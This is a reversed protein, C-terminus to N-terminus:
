ARVMKGVDALLARLNLGVGAALSLILAGLGFLLPNPLAAMNPVSAMSILEADPLFRQEAATLANFEALSGRYVLEDSEAERTLNALEFAAIRRETMLARIAVIEKDLLDQRHSWGEAEVQAGALIRDQETAIREEISQIEAPSVVPRALAEALSQKLRQVTPSELVAPASDLSNQEKMRALTTARTSAEIARAKVIATETSLSSLQAELSAQAGEDVLGTESMFTEMATRSRFAKERLSRTRESMHGALDNVANRKRDIQMDLYTNTFSTTLAAAKVPDESKVAIELTYSRRDRRIDIAERLRERIEAHTLPEGDPPEIWTALHNRFEGIMSKSQGPLVPIEGPHEQISLRVNDPVVTEGGASIPGMAAHAPSISLLHLEFPGPASRAASRRWQASAVADPAILDALQLRLQALRGPGSFEADHLLAHDAILRDLLFDSRLTDIESLIASEDLPERRALRQELTEVGNTGSPQMVLTAQSVYQRPLAPWVLAALALVATSGLLFRWISYRPARVTVAPFEEPAPQNGPVHSASETM